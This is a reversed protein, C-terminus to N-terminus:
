SNGFVRRAWLCALCCLLARAEYLPQFLFDMRVFPLTPSGGQHADGSAFRM